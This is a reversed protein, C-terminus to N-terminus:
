RWASAGATTLGRVREDHNLLGRIQDATGRPDIAGNITINVNMAPAAPASPTSALRLFGAPDGAAFKGYASAPTAYMDAIPNSGFMSSLWGPPSPWRISGLKGILNSVWGVVTSIASAVNDFWGIATSIAGGIASFAGKVGDIVGTARLFKGIM